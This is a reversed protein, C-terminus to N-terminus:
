QGGLTILACGMTRAAQETGSRREGPGGVETMAGSPPATVIGALSAPSCCDTVTVSVLVKSTVERSTVLSTCPFRSAGPAVPGNSTSSTQSRSTSPSTTDKSIGPPDTRSSLSSLPRRETYSSSGTPAAQSSVSVSVLSASPVWIVTASSPAAGSVVSLVLASTSRPRLVAGPWARATITLAYSASGTGGTM